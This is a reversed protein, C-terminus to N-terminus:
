ILALIYFLTALFSGVSRVHNWRTWDVLYRDWIKKAQQSNADFAELENNMPVNFGITIIMVAILYCLSGAALFLSNVSVEGLFLWCILVISLLATGMFTLFFLPNLIVVNIRQMAAIGAEPKLQSLAHMVFNSFTFFMGAMLASGLAALLVLIPLLNTM